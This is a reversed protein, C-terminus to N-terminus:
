TTKETYYTGATPADPIAVNLLDTTTKIANLETRQTPVQGRQAGDASTYKKVQMRPFTRVISVANGTAEDNGEFTIRLGVQTPGASGDYFATGDTAIKSMGIEELAESWVQNELVVRFKDTKDKEYTRQTGETTLTTVDESFQVARSDLEVSAIAAANVYLLEVLAIVKNVIRVSSLAAM